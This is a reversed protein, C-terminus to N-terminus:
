EKLRLLLTGDEVRLDSVGAAFAKWFGETEGFEGVLDINKVGGLWANPVPVGMLSIGKLVVRPRGEAYALELGATVKVVRGGFFPFDEDVPVLLKASLLNESLHLALRSALDTNRALLSNLERETFRVTRSAEDERYPEPELGGPAGGRGKEPIAPDLRELKAELAEQERPGLVVPRFERPFLLGWAVVAAAILAAAAAAAAAWWVLRPRRGPIEPPPLEVQEVTKM